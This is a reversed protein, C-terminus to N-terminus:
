PSRRGWARPGAGSRRFRRTSGGGTRSAPSPTRACSSRSDRTPRRWRPRARPWWGSWRPRSGGYTGCGPSTSSRGPWPSSSRWWPASGSGKRPPPARDGSGGGRGRRELDRRREGRDGPLPVPRPAPQYLPGDPGPGRGCLRSRFRGASAPSPRDLADAPELATFHVDLRRTGAPLLWPGESPLPRGDVFAEEIVVPPPLRNPEFRRPPISVVGGRTTFWLRGDPDKWQASGAHNVEVSRM